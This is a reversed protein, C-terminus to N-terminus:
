TRSSTIWLVRAHVGPMAGEGIKILNRDPENPKNRLAIRNVGVEEALKVTVNRGHSLLYYGNFLRGAHYLEGLDMPPSYIELLLLDGPGIAPLALLWGPPVRFSRLEKPLPRDCLAAPYEDMYGTPAFEGNQLRVAPVVISDREADFRPDTTSIPPSKEAVQSPGAMVPQQGIEIFKSNVIGRAVLESAIARLNKHLTQNSIGSKSDFTRHVRPQNWEIARALKSQNGGYVEELVTQLRLLLIQPMPFRM